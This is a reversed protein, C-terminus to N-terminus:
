EPDCPGDCTHIVEGTRYFHATQELSRPNRRPRGHPDDEARQPINYIPDPPLGYDFEILASGTHPPAVEEIGWVPRTQPAITVAGVARAMVHAGLTTVQHDGMAPMILVQHSPTGPLPDNMIHSTFSGPESRDWLTQMAALAIQINPGDSFSQRLLALYPDFDVSRNLLLNYPQGPVGLRGRLVDTSLAMYTGGFIGGQSDGTYYAESTDIVSTGDIQFAEHTGARTLMMRMALLSNTIGQVLREPVTAFDEITGRALAVTIPAVDDEAMGKWDVAFVIYNNDNAWEAAWGANSEYRSGLLGHGYQLPRSPTEATASHPINVLVCYEATGNMAPMGDPGLNIRAGAEPVDTFLPVEMLLNLRRRINENEEPTFDEMPNGCRYPEETEFRIAPGEDGAWELAQDRASVLWGTDDELSSTTFDWALQLDDRMVGNDELTTFIGDFHDRRADISAVDTDTGDRLAAFTAPPEIVDGARSVVGRVAVIYRTEHALPVVPRIILTRPVIPYPECPFGPEGCVAIREQDVCAGDVLTQGVQCEDRCLRSSCVQGGSCTADCSGCSDPSLLDTECGNLIDGDCDAFGPPCRTSLDLEAIHPVREGTEANLLVTPSDPEISDGIHDPDALGEPDADPLYALISANISWGDRANLETPDVHRRPPVNARPLTTEGLSVTHGSATSSDEALWYDSPFPLACYEPVLAECDDRLLDEGPGADVDPAGADAGGGDTDPAEEEDCGVLLALCVCLAIWTRSM